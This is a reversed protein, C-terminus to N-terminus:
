AGEPAASPARGALGARAPAAAGARAPAAAGAFTARAARQAAWPFGRQETDITTDM